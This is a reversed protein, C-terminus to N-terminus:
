ALNQCRNVQGRRWQRAQDQAQRDAQSGDAAGPGPAARRSSASAQRSARLTPAVVTNCRVPCPVAITMRIADGIGDATVATIKAASVPSSSIQDGGDDCEGNTAADRRQGPQRLQHAQQQGSLGTFGSESSRAVVTGIVQECRLQPVADRETLKQSPLIAPM